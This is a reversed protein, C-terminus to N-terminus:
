DAQTPTFLFLSYVQKAQLLYVFILGFFSSELRQYTYKGAEKGTTEGVVLTLIAIYSLQNSCLM